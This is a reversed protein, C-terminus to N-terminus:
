APLVFGAARHDHVDLRGASPAHENVPAARALISLEM